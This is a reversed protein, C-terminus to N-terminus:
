LLINCSKSVIKLSNKKEEEEEEWHGVHGQRVEHDERRPM